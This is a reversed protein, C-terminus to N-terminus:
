DEHIFEIYKAPHKVTSRAFNEVEELQDINANQFMRQLIPVKTADLISKVPLAFELKEELKDIEEDKESMDSLKEELEDIKDEYLTDIEDISNRITDILSDIKGKTDLTTKKTKSM